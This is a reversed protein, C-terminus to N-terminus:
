PSKTTKKSIFSRVKKPLWAKFNPINFGFLTVMTIIIFAIIKVTWSNIFFPFSVIVLLFIIISIIIPLIVWTIARASFDLLREYKQNLINKQEDKQRIMREREELSEVTKKHSIKEQEVEEKLSSIHRKNIEDLIQTTTRPGFNNIDNKTSESLLNFAVRYTRLIYYENESINNDKKLTEIQDLYKKILHSDPQIAAYADAIIRKENLTITKAPNQLWLLTGIFVDTICPPISFPANDSTQVRSSIKALLKNTTVFIHSADHITFAIKGKRLKCISYISEIDKNITEGKQNEDFFPDTKYANVISEKLQSEDIQYVINEDYKPKPTKEIKFKELVQSVRAIFMEVDTETFENTIFYKLTRSAKSMEYNKQNMWYLASSFITMMEDYTHEFVRIKAGDNVLNQTLEEFAQKNEEGDVGLLSFLYGTDLYLNLDRMRGAFHERLDNGYVLAAALASGVAIDVIFEFLQPEAKKALHIFKAVLFKTSKDVEVDPLINREDTAYLLSLENERFFGLLAKEAVKEELAVDYEKKSFDIIAFILKNLKRQQDASIIDFNGDKIKDYNPTFGEVGKIIFGRARLRGLIAMIPHHPISLGYESEFDIKITDVEIKEYHKMRILNSFLPLFSEIHDIHREDWNVKLIALSTISRNLM